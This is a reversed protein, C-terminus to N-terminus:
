TKGKLYSSLNVNSLRSKFVSVTNCDYCNDSLHNWVPLVRNIFFCSFVSKNCRNGFLKYKHGM